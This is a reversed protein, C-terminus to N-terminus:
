IGFFNDKRQLLTKEKHQKKLKETKKRKADAAGPGLQKWKLSNSSGGNCGCSSCSQSTKKSWNKERKLGVEEVATM